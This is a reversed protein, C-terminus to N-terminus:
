EIKSEKEPTSVSFGRKDAMACYAMGAYRGFVFVVWTSFASSLVYFMTMSFYTTLGSLADTFFFFLVIIALTRSHALYYGRTLRVVHSISRFMGKDGSLYCAPATFLFPFGICFFILFNSSILIFPISVALYFLSLLGLRKLIKGLSLPVEMKVDGENQKRQKRIRFSRVYLASYLIGMMLVIFLAIFATVLFIINGRNFPMTNPLQSLDAATEFAGLWAYAQSFDMDAYPNFFVASRVLVCFLVMFRVVWKDEIDDINLLRGFFRLIM